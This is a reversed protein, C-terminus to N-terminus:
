NTKLNAQLFREVSSLITRRASENTMSHGGLEVEVYEVPNDLRELRRAMQRGQDLHVRSDDKAQIILMPVRIREAQHYPSVADVAEGDLGMHRTWVSGGIYSRDDAILRPLNLVGNISAACQFLEPTQVAGIAAFKTALQAMGSIKGGTLTRVLSPTLDQTSPPSQRRIAVTPGASSVSTTRTRSERNSSGVREM